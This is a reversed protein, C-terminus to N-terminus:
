TDCVSSTGSPGRFRQRGELADQAGRLFLAFFSSPAFFTSPSHSSKISSFNAEGHFGLSTMSGQLRVDASFREISECSNFDSFASQRWYSRTIWNISLCRSIGPPLFSTEFNFRNKRGYVTSFNVRNTSQVLSTVAIRQSPINKEPFCM